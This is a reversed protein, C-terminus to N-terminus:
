HSVAEDSGETRNSQREKYAAWALVAFVLLLNPVYMWLWADAADRILSLGSRNELVIVAAALAALVAYPFLARLGRSRIFRPLLPKAHELGIHWFILLSIVSILVYALLFVYLVREIFGYTLRLSDATAFWPYTLVGVGDAGHFGIPLLFTVLVQLAGIAALALLYGPKKVNPAIVRNFVTLSMFGSMMFAAASFSLLSPMEAFHGAVEWMSDTMLTNSFLAKFLVLALLPVSILLMIELMYLLKISPQNVFLVVIVLFLALSEVPTFDPNIFRKTVEAIYLLAVTGGIFWFASQLLVLGGAAAKPLSAFAIEPFGQNPFRAFLRTFLFIFAGGVPIALMLAPVAGDFRHELLTIGALPVINSLMNLFLLYAYYRNM